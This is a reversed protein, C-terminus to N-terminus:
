QCHRPCNNELPAAGAGFYTYYGAAGATNYDHNGPAPRTRAKHRGWTPGYCDNFQTPTGDPYANDGLTFVTGAIGDLLQATSEDRTHSCNAIDGAGVLVPDATQSLASEPLPVSSGLVLGCFVALVSFFRKVM